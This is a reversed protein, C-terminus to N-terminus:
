IIKWSFSAQLYKLPASAGMGGNKIFPRRGSPRGAAADLATKRLSSFLESRWRYVPRAGGHRVSAMLRPAGGMDLIKLIKKLIKM